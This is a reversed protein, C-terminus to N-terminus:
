KYEASWAHEKTAMAKAPENEGVTRGSPDNEEGQLLRNADGTVDGAGDGDRVDRLEAGGTSNSNNSSGSASSTPSRSSASKLRIALTTGSSLNLPGPM